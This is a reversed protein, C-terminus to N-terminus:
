FTVGLSVDVIGHAEGASIAEDPRILEMAEAVEM